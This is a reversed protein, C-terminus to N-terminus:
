YQACIPFVATSLAFVLYLFFNLPLYLLMYTYLGKFNRAILPYPILTTPVTEPLTYGTLFRYLDFNIVLSIYILLYFTKM